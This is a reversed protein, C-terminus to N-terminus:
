EADLLEAEVFSWRNVQVDATVQIRFVQNALTVKFPGILEYNQTPM